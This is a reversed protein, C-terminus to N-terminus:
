RDFLEYNEPKNMDKDELAEVPSLRHRRAPKFEYTLGHECTGRHAYYPTVRHTLEITVHMIM